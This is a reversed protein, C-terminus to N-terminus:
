KAKFTTRGSSLRNSIDTSTGRQAMPAHLISNSSTVEGNETRETKEKHCWTFESFKESPNCNYERYADSDFRVHGGLRLGDVIYPSQQVSESPLVQSGGGFTRVFGNSNQALAITSLFVLPVVCLLVLPRPM